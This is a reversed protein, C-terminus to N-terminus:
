GRGVSLVPEARSVDLPPGSRAQIPEHPESPHGDTASMTVTGKTDEAPTWKGDSKFDLAYMHPKEALADVGMRAKAASDKDLDAQDPVGSATAAKLGDRAQADERRAAGFDKETEIKRIQDQAMQERLQSAAEAYPHHIPGNADKMVNGSADLMPDHFSMTRMHNHDNFKVTYRGGDGERDPDFDVTRAEGKYSFNHEVSKRVGDVTVFEPKQPASPTYHHPPQAHPAPAVKGDPAPAVRGDPPPAQTVQVGPADKTGGENNIQFLILNGAGPPGQEGRDGKDGKGGTPGTPGQDGKDGKGGTPGTPGTPGQPGQISIGQPGQEGKGGTPGTPGTPGQPGQISIGQPGQEGKGGAPGTPGAPGPLGEKGGKDSPGYVKDSIWDGTRHGVERAVETGVEDVKEAAWVEPGGLVSLVGKGFSKIGM